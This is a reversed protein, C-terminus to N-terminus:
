RVKGRASVRWLVEVTGRRHIVLEDHLNVCVCVHNPIWSLRDGVKYQVPSDGTQVFGHEENMKILLLHEDEPCIAYGQGGTILPDSFFSKSGGDIIMQGPVATSVVTTLVRLACDQLSASGEALTNRDNFVYTGPRIETVGPLLHMYSLNPTSGASVIEPELGERTLQDLIQAIRDGEARMGQEREEPTGRIHGQYTMLGRWEVGRLQSAYQCLRILEPGPALGCRHLGTDAEVLVGIPTGASRGAQAVEELCEQSDLAVTVRAKQALQSLRQRKEKGIIPYALLIDELGGEAMVEAEGLKACTIGVAGYDQQLRAIEICKHTKIHPRLKLHHQQAYEAARRLNKELIERDVIIVPTDLDYITM